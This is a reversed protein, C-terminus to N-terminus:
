KGAKILNGRTATIDAWVQDRVLAIEHAELDIWPGWVKALALAHEMDPVHQCLGPGIEYIAGEGIDTSAGPTINHVLKMDAEQPQPPAPTPTVAGGISAFFADSMMTIDVNENNPGHDIFQTADAPPYGCNGCVHPIGHSVRGSADTFSYHASWLLYKRNGMVARITSIQSASTYIIPLALGRAHQRDCWGPAQDPTADGPEVDLCMADDNATITITVHPGPYVANMYNSNTYRGNVYGATAAGDHPIASVTVSDYMIHTM